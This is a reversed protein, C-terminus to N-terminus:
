AVELYSAVKQKQQLFIIIEHGVVILATLLKRRVFTLHHFTGLYFLEIVINGM